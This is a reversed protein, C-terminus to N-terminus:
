EEEEIEKVDRLPCPGPEMIFGSVADDWADNVTEGQGVLVISFEFTKM